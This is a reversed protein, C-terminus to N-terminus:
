QYAEPGRINDHSPLDFLETQTDAVQDLNLLLIRQLMSYSTKDVTQCRLCALELRSTSYKEGLRFIGQCSNYSQPEHIRSLLVHQIAWRTAPGIKDAQALFYAANFGRAKKWEMHNTPMHQDKTQHRYANRHPLREHIAIRQNDLYVEVVTSTYIVMTNKGVYQYPVSYYNKEEGIFVHYDRRVKSKTMRKLEFMDSPLEQMVPFEYLPFIELRSGQRKQYPEANHKVTQTLIGKNLAELSHYIENRIPAYIRTYTTKVMNEVSGKDKPKRVRTSSLDLHYHAALQVCLQNFEPDYKDAKIVYSKFNDSLIGQPLRGFFLFIMNLGHIFDATKQSPTAIAFTYQSHPMVAVLVECPHVEGSDADVWCLKSGAFDAQMMEGPKHDMSITLDRRGIERKLHECFQSYGYGLPYEIRYEQWLLYKTVGVRRLEKIFYEMKSKLIVARDMSAKEEQSYMLKIADDEELALVEKIPAQEVELKRLYSRVTNKSMGLQRATSKISNTRQYTELILKVQDMRKQKGM